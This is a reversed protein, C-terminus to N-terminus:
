IMLLQYVTKKIQQISALVAEKENKLVHQKAEETEKTKIHKEEKEKLRRKAELDAKYSLHAFKVSQIFSKTIPIDLISGFSLITDKVFRLAEITEPDLSTGHLQIIHKNISFGNEPVSNGHSLSSVVKFLSTINPFKPSGSDNLIKTEFSNILTDIDFSCLLKSVISLGALQFAKEWYSTQNRGISVLKESCKYYCEPLLEM